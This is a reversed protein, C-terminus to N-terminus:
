NTALAITRVGDAGVATYFHLLRTGDVVIWPKHAFQSDYPESPAVTFGPQREWGLPFADDTTTAIADRATTGDFGYYDMAWGDGSRRVFPDGVLLSDWGGEPALLPSNADDVTWPGVASPGTAYGISERDDSGTANFFAFWEPGRRVVSVHWVAKSRWGGGAPRIAVGHRTWPGLPSPGTAYRIEKTGAEYGQSGLAIYYLAWRAGDRVLVPGTTGYEDGAPAFNVGLKTWTKADASRAAGVQGRGDHYGVYLMTWGGRWRVVTPSEVADSDWSGPTSELVVGVKHLSMEVPAPSGGAIAAIVAALALWWGIRVGAMCGMIRGVGALYM